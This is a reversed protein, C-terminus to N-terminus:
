CGAETESGFAFYFLLTLAQVAEERFFIRRIHAYELIALDLDHELEGVFLSFFERSQHLIVVYLGTM